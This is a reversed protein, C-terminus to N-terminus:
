LWFTESKDKFYVTVAKFPHSLVPRVRTVRYVLAKGPTILSSYTVKLSLKPLPYTWPLGDSSSLAEGAFLGVARQWSRYEPSIAMWAFQRVAATTVRFSYIKDLKVYLHDGDPRIHRMILSQSLPEFIFEAFGPDPFLARLAIDALLVQKNRVQICRQEYYNGKFGAM